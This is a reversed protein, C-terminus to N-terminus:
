FIRIILPDSSATVEYSNIVPEEDYFPSFEPDLREYDKHALHKELDDKSNWATISLAENKNERGELLHVFRNGEHSHVLPIVVKSYADRYEDMKGKKITLSVIRVYM